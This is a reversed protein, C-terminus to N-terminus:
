LSNFGEIYLLGEVNPDMVPYMKHGLFLKISECTNPNLECDFAYNILELGVEDNIEYEEDKLESNNTIRIYDKIPIEITNNYEEIEENPDDYHDDTVKTLNVHLFILELEYGRNNQIWALGNTEERLIRRITNKNLGMNLGNNENVSPKDNPEVIHYLEFNFKFDTKPIGLNQVRKKAKERLKEIHEPSPIYIEYGTNVERLVYGKSGIEIVEGSINPGFANLKFPRKYKGLTALFFNTTNKPGNYVVTVNDGLSVKENRFVDTDKAWDFDDIEEKIIKKLDM